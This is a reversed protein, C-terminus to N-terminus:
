RPQDTTKSWSTHPNANAMVCFALLRWLDSRKLLDEKIDLKWLLRTLPSGSEIEDTLSRINSASPIHRQNMFHLLDAISNIAKAQEFIEPGGFPWYVISSLCEFIPESDPIEDTDNEVRLYVDRGSKTKIHLEYPDHSYPPDLVEIAEYPICTMTGGSVWQLQRDTFLVFDSPSNFYAGILNDGEDFMEPQLQKLDTLEAGSVYSELGSLESNLKYFLESRM